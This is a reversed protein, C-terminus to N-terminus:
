RATSARRGVTVRAMSRRIASSADTFAGIARLPRLTAAASSASITARATPCIRDRASNEMVSSQASSSARM